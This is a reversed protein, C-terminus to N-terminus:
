GAIAHWTSGPNGAVTSSLKSLGNMTWVMAQGNVNQLLIDAKGNGDYDGAAKISWGAGPNDLANGGLVNTGNMLWIAAQGSDNQYLIDAKGDDDFDGAAKVHWSAGPNGIASGGLVSTGNMLWIAVQGSDDQYLIDCKGDGNFDGTARVHWTGAPNGIGSGGTVGTGSMIWIAVEGSENQYLIDSKADGNFDGAGAIHWSIGPNGIGAGGAVAAGDMLWIAPQGSDNQYLIDAKGDEDFDGAAKAHWGAGPNGARSGGLVTGGNMLWVAVQGDDNQYLIDANGDGNFDGRRHFPTNNGLDNVKGNILFDAGSNGVVGTSLQTRGNMTWLLIQGNDNQFLIDSKGDINYDSAVKAQWGAGPNGVVGNDLVNLGNMLWVAIQGNNNQYLIDAKGDGNFDGTTGVHWGAGPGSVGSGGSVSLGNMLWIAVAGSDNQYLIDDKGDGNFDGSAVAHWVVGPNGVGSGASVTLGSMLWIAVEGSDNQYLIDDKGDGNFDGAAKAHWAIGPNSLGGGGTVTLGNMFWIAPQGNDNQYLIDSRGEGTFDGIGRVHWPAGPNGITSGNMLTAGNMLWIAAQGTSNQFLIDSLGNSDFDITTAPTLGGTSITLDAFAIFQINSLTDTEGGLSVSISGNSNRTVVYSSYNGAESATNIGGAGDLTDSGPGGSLFDNGAGGTLIDAGLGGYIHDGNDNGTVTDTGSGGIFTDIATNFAICINNTLGGCSSFAGANLNVTSATSFGSLDLTNNSGSDWITLIPTTNQTFDFFPAIAGSINSNFGFIQGGSLPTTVPAGYLRQAALIDLAMTTTAQNPYIFGSQPATKGWDSHVPYSSYYIARTDDLDIYSMISWLRSDFPGFQANDVGSANVSGDYPGGHGLGIAHGEEHLLTQWPYGGATSFSSGIPGFGWISTDISITASTMHVLRSGGTVGEGSSRSFSPSTQAIGDNSRKFTIQASGAIATQAFSINAEASWLALGAALAQREAATWNSAVDFYYSITGGSTGAIDSGWKMAETFGGAYTAPTDQNWSYFGQLALTGDPNVSSIFSAENQQTGTIPINAVTVTTQYYGSHDDSTNGDKVMWQVTRAGGNEQAPIFWVKRLVTEYNALSDSGSLTLTGQGDYSASISTGSVDVSLRDGTLWGSIQVTAGTLFSYDPSQVTLDPSLVSGHVTDKVAVAGTVNSLSPPVARPIFVVTFPATVADSGTGHSDVAIGADMLMYYEAWPDFTNHTAVLLENGSVTVHTADTVSITDVLGGNMAYIYIDGTGIHIADSYDLHLTPRISVFGNETSPQGPLLQLPIPATRFNLATPSSIGAFANGNVDTIFGPDITIYYPSGPQLSIDFQITQGIFVVNSANAALTGDANYIHIGGGSGGAKVQEDFTLSFSGQWGANIANDAPDGGVLIPPTLDSPDHITVFNTWQGNNWVNGATDKVLGVPLRLEYLQDYGVLDIAPNITVVNGSFSVQSTDTISISESFGIGAGIILINGTAAVVPEDFTLTINGNPAIATNPYPSLGVLNPSTTDPATTFNLATPSSIGAFANGALDEIAGNDITLYYSTNYQVSANFTVTGGYNNPIMLDSAAITAIVTGNATHLYINGTGRQVNDNFQLTIDVTPNGIYNTKVSVNTGNDAPLSAVLLPPAADTGSAATFDLVIDSGLPNGSFDTIDGRPIILRYTQGAALDLNIALANDVLAIGPLNSSLSLTTNAGSSDSLTYTAAYKLLIPQDFVFTMLSSPLVIQNEAPYTSTLVPM